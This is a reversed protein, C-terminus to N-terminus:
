LTTAGPHVERIQLAKDLPRRNKLMEQGAFQKQGPRVYCMRSLLAKVKVEVVHCQPGGCPGIRNQRTLQETKGIAQPQQGCLAQASSGRLYLPTRRSGEILIDSASLLLFMALM